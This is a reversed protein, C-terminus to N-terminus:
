IDAVSNVVLGDFHRSFVALAKSIHKEVNQISTRTRQAIERNNLGEFRSMYFVERCRPPLTGMVRDIEKRLEIFMLDDEPTLDVTRLCPGIELQRLHKLYNLCSNRVMVFLLAQLSVDRITYRKEYLKIFCEQVIDEAVDSREVLRSAYNRLRPYYLTFLEEINMIAAFILFIFLQCRGPMETGLALVLCLFPPLM